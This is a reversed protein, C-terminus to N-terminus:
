VTPPGRQRNTDSPQFSLAASVPLFGSTTPADLPTQRVMEPWEPLLHAQVLYDCLSCDETLYHADHLHANHDNDDRELSCIKMEEHHHHSNTLVHVTKGTASLLVVALLFVASFSRYSLAFIRM